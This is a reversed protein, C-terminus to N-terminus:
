VRRFVLDFFTRDVHIEHLVGQQYVYRNVSGNPLTLRYQSAGIRELPCDRLVSEVYIHKQELPEEYYMRATTWTNTCAGVVVESPHIFGVSRGSISRMHSSDRMADNVHLSSTCATLKDDVYEATMTTRVVQEWLMTFSSHSTMNYRTIGGQMTRNVLVRGIVEDGKWIAFAGSQAHLILSSWLSFCLLCAARISTGITGCFASM